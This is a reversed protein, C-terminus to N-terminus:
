HPKGGNWIQDSQGKLPESPAQPASVVPTMVTEPLVQAAQTILSGKRFKIMPLHPKVVKFIRSATSSM